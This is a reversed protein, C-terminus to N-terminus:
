TDIIDFYRDDKWYIRKKNPDTKHKYLEIGNELYPNDEYSSQRLLSPQIPVSYEEEEEIRELIDLPKKRRKKNKNKNIIRLSPINKDLEEKLILLKKLYNERFKETEKKPYLISNRVLEIYKNLKIKSGILSTSKLVDNFAKEKTFDINYNYNLNSNIKELEEKIYKPMNVVSKILFRGIKKGPVINEGTGDKNSRRVRSKRRSRRAPSKRKSRRAPSKRRSRSRRAPSKRKSRRVPSKRRSRRAPSKRRSRRAPSKRRSRRSRRVPSKRRSRSRRSPSKRRSRRSPSKRRSRRSPSKRKRRSRTANTKAKM